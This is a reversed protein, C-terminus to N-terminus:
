APTVLVFLVVHYVAWVLLAAAGVLLYVLAGVSVAPLEAGFGLWLFWGLAYVGVGILILPVPSVGLASLIPMTMLAVLGCLVVRGIRPLRNLRAIFRDRM